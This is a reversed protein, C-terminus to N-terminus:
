THLERYCQPIFFNPKLKCMSKSQQYRFSYCLGTFKITNAINEIPGGIFGFEKKAAKYEYM